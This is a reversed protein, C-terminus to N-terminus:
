PIIEGKQERDIMWELYDDITKLDPATKSNLAKEFVEELPIGTFDTLEPTESAAAPIHVAQIAPAKQEAAARMREPFSARENASSSVSQKKTASPQPVPRGHNIKFEM